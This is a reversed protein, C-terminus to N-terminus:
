SEVAALANRYTASLGASCLVAVVDGSPSLRRFIQVFEGRSVPHTRPMAGSEKLKRHFDESQLDIGDKFVENGFQVSVPAVQIGLRRADIALLDSTSDTLIHVQGEPENLRLIELGILRQVARVVELDTAEVLDVLDGFTKAVQAQSLTEREVPSFELSFFDGTVQVEPRADLTPLGALADALEVREDVAEVVLAGIDEGLTQEAEPPPELTLTFGGGPLGALRNFAKLGRAPARWADLIAGEYVWM